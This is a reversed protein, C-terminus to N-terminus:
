YCYKTGDVLDIFSLFTVLNRFDKVVYKILSTDNIGVNATAITVGDVVVFAAYVVLTAVTIFFRVYDITVGWFVLLYLRVCDAGAALLWYM